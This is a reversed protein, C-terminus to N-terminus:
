IYEFKLKNQLCVLIYPIWYIRVVWNIPLIEWNFLIHEFSGALHSVFNAQTVFRHRNVDWREAFPGNRYPLHRLIDIFPPLFVEIFLSYSIFHACYGELLCFWLFSDHRLIMVFWIIIWILDYFLEMEVFRLVINSSRSIM